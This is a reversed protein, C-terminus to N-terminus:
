LTWRNNWYNLIPPAVSANMQGTNSESAGAITSPTSLHLDQLIQRTKKEDLEKMGKSTSDYYEFKGTKQRNLTSEQFQSQLLAQVQLATNKAAPGKTGTLYQTAAQINSQQSTGFKIDIGEARMQGQMARWESTNQWNAGMEQVMARNVEEIKLGEGARLLAQVKVQKDTMLSVNKLRGEKIDKNIKRAFNGSETTYINMAQAALFEQQATGAATFGPSYKKALSEITALATRVGRDEVTLDGSAIKLHQERMVRKVLEQNQSLWVDAQTTPFTGIAANLQARKERGKVTDEIGEGLMAFYANQEKTLATLRGTQKNLTLGGPSERALAADLIRTTQVINQQAAEINAKFGGIGGIVPVKGKNRIDYIRAAAEAVVTSNAGRTSLQEVIQQQTLDRFKDGMVADNVLAIVSKDSSSAIGSAGAYDAYANHARQATSMEGGAYNVLQKLYTRAWSAAFGKDQQMRKFISSSENIGARNLIGGQGTSLLLQNVPLTGGEIAALDKQLLNFDTTSLNSFNLKATASLRSKEMGTLEPLQKLGLIREATMGALASRQAGSVRQNVGYLNQLVADANASRMRNTYEGWRGGGHAVMEMTDQAAEWGHRAFKSIGLAAEGITKGTEDVIASGMGAGFQGVSVMANFTGRAIPNWYTPREQMAAGIRQAQLAAYQRDYQKSSTLSEMMVERQALDTIGMQREAFVWAQQRADGVKNARWANFTQQILMQRDQNSMAELAKQRTLDFMARGGAGMAYGVGSARSTIEYASMGGSRMRDMMVPDISGDPRLMSAVVRTGMGSNLLNMQGSAITAGAQAIGGAREVARAMVPSVQAQLAATTAAQQYMSAGSMGSWGTGQVAQAGARGILMMNQAGVGTIEGFGKAQIVQQRIADISTFGSQQLEKIVSMGGVLTTNLIKVVDRTTDRLKEFNKVFQQTTGSQGMANLISTDIKGGRATLMQGIDQNGANLLGSALGTKMIQMQQNPGFFDGTEGPRTFEGRYMQQQLQRGLATTQQYTFNGGIRRRYLDLDTSINAAFERRKLEGEVAMTIPATMLAPIIMGSAAGALGAATLLGGGGLAGTVGASIMGGTAGMVGWDVAQNFLQASFTERQIENRRQFTRFMTERAVADVGRGYRDQTLIRFMQRQTLDPPQMVNQQYQAVEQSRVMNQYQIYNEM